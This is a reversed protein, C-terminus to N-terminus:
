GGAAVPGSPAGSGAGQKLMKEAQVVAQDYPIGQEKMIKDALAM